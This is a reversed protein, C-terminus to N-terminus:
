GNRRIGASLGPRTGRRGRAKDMTLPAGRAGGARAGRDEWSSTRCASGAATAEEGIGGGGGLEGKGARMCAGLGKGINRRRERRRRRKGGGRGM